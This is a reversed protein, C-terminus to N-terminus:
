NSYKLVFDDFSFQKICYHNSKIPETYIPIKKEEEFNNEKTEDINIIFNSDKEDINSYFDFNDQKVDQDEQPNNIKFIPKKKMLSSYESELNNNKKKQNTGINLLADSFEKELTTNNINDNAQIIRFISNM